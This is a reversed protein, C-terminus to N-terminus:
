KGVGQLASTDATQTMNFQLPAGTISGSPAVGACEMDFVLPIGGPAVVQGSIFAYRAGQWVFYDTLGNPIVKMLQAAFVFRLTGEALPRTPQRKFNWQSLVAWGDYAEPVAQARKQTVPDYAGAQPTRIIQGKAGFKPILTNAVQAFSAYATGNAPLILDTTM